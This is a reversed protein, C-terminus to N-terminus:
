LGTGVSQHQHGIQMWLSFLVPKKEASTLEEAENHKHALPIYEYSTRYTCM